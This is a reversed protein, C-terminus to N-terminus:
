GSKKAIMQKAFIGGPLHESQTIQVAFRGIWFQAHHVGAIKRQQPIRGQAQSEWGGLNRNIGRGIGQLSQLHHIQRTRNQVGGTGYVAGKIPKQVETNKVFGGSQPGFLVVRNRQGKLVLFEFIQYELPLCIHVGTSPFGSEPDGLIYGIGVTGTPHIGIRDAIFRVQVLVAAVGRIRRTIQSRQPYAATGRLCVAICGPRLYPHAEVIGQETTSSGDTGGVIQDNSEPIDIAEIGGTGTNAAFHM